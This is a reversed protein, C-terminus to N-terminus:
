TNTTTGNEKIEEVIKNQIYTQIQKTKKDSEFDGSIKKGGLVIMSGPRVRFRM